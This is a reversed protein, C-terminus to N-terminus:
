GDIRRPLTVTVKLGGMDSRALSLTGKYARALDDVIALGFGTGPTAEDLRVGRKLASAYDEKSLGPGDDEVCIFLQGEDPGLIQASVRVQSVCWKCANDLLNGAMEELDRKEGRFALDPAIDVAMDIDKSRYIRPMTRALSEVTDYVNTSAGISQGRAAARARRLHHDVQSRMAGSQRSVVDASIMQSEPATSVENMLVALPTKLAHALNSVHTQARDVVDKNHDILVNLETALPEIETPYHGSVRDLRGERVAVVNDRLDFLPKLGLRVQIFVAGILGLTVLTMLFLALGAFRRVAQSAPRSDAAALVLVAGSEMNPLIVLRASVRLPEGDPGTSRTAIPDGPNERLAAVDSPAIRLTEDLLSRSAKVANIVGEDNVTGIVWYRGSLARQYRPDTPERLLSIGSLGDSGADINASAILSTVASMLPDDFIRYTSNRYFWTLTMAAILLSPLAWLVASRVLRTVLSQNSRLDQAPKAGVAEANSDTAAGSM